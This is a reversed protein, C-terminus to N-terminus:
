EANKFSFHNLIFRRSLPTYTSSILALQLHLFSFPISLFAYLHVIFTPLLKNTCFSALHSFFRLDTFPLHHPYCSCCKVKSQSDPGPPYYSLYGSLILSFGFLTEAAEAAAAARREREGTVSRSCDWSSLYGTIGKKTQTGRNLKGGGESGQKM